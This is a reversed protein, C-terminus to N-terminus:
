LFSDILLTNHTHYEIVYIIDVFDLEFLLANFNIRNNMM